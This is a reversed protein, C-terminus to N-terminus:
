GHTTNENKSGFDYVTGSITGMQNKLYEGQRKAANKLDSENAINYRDFVSRTKHGSMMMAVRESLGEARCQMKM